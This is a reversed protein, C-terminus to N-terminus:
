GKLSFISQSSFFSMRTASSSAAIINKYKRNLGMSNFNQKWVSGVATQM